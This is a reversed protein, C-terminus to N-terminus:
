IDRGRERIEELEKKMEAWEKIVGCLHLALIDDGIIQQLHQPLDSYTVDGGIGECPNGLLEDAFEWIARVKNAGELKEIAKEIRDLQHNSRNRNIPPGLKSHAEHSRFLMDSQWRKMEEETPLDIKSLDVNDTM